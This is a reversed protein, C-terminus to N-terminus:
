PVICAPEPDAMDSYQRSIPPHRECTSGGGLFALTWETSTPELVRSERAVVVM